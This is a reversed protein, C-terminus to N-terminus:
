LQGSGPEYGYPKLLNAVSALLEEARFPKRLIAGAGFRRAFSLYDIRGLSGGGSVALIPMSPTMAHACKVTELGDMDPMFIDTILLDANEVRLYQIAEKANRFITVEYGAGELIRTYMRLLASDDDVVVITTM